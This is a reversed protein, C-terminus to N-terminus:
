QGDGLVVVDGPKLGSLVEVQGQYAKGTRVHRLKAVGQELLRVSELQGSRSIAAAPVLLAQRGGCVQEIWVFAGPRAAGPNDLGAKVLVTRTQPDAAPAIEEVKASAGTDNWIVRVSAGPQLSRACSEPIAAEVRLKEGSQVTLLAAGPLATDGPELNRRVVTGDFPARLVTEALVSETTAIAARAEAVRASASRAAAQAAELSQQTAAEQKFLNQTRRLDAEAKAAQAQTADLASRAQNTRSQLESPDLRAVIQGAKVADGTKVTIEVIRASVKPAVQAVSRAAVTGPWRRVEGMDRLEAKATMGHTPEAKEAAQATGPKVKSTFGGQMWVLLLVLGAISVLAQILKRNYNQKDSM